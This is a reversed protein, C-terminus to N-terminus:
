NVTDLSNFIYKIAQRVTCNILCCDTHGKYIKLQFYGELM